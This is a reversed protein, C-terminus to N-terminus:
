SGCPFDDDGHRQLERNNVLRTGEKYHMKAQRERLSIENARREVAKREAKLAKLEEQAKAQIALGKAKERSRVKEQLLKAQGQYHEIAKALTEDDANDVDVPQTLFRIPGPVDDAQSKQM